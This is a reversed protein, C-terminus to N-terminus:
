RAAERTLAELFALTSPQVSAGRARLHDVRTQAIELVVRDFDGPMRARLSARWRDLFARGPELFDAAYLARGLTDLDPSGITHYAVAALLTEDDVGDSRLREAAAPGHLLAGPLERLPQPVHPRLAEPREDRLADHLYGVARWRVREEQGVDLANAWAGLLDAVRGMHGRRGESAVAWAPLVGRSAAEVLAHVRPAAGGIAREPRPGGPPLSSPMARFIARM